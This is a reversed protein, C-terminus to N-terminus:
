WPPRRAPGRRAAGPPSGHFTRVYVATLSVTSAARSKHYAFTSGRGIANIYKVSPATVDFTFHDTTLGKLSRTLV